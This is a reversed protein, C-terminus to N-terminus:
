TVRKRAGDVGLVLAGAATASTKLRRFHSEVSNSPRLDSM